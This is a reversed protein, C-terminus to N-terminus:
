LEKAGPLAKIHQAVRQRYLAQKKDSLAEIEAPSLNNGLAYRIINDHRQGFLPSFEEKTLTVGMEKFIDRWASYHYQMTDAIIGDMDWLVAKLHPRSM